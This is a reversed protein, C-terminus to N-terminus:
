VNRMLWSEPTIQEGHLARFDIWEKLAYYAEPTIFSFYEDHEETYVILKAAIIEDDGKDNKKKQPIVHKWKLYDWAGLRIGSSCMVLIIPKVRKDKAGIIKRIEERTPARDNSAKRPKPLARSILKWNIPPLDHSEYFLKIAPIYNKLTGATIEGKKKSGSDDDSSSKNQHKVRKKISDLYLMIHEQAWQKGDNNQRVEDLFLRGQQELDGQLGIFEFFSQLSKPYGKVTRPSNLYTFAYAVPSKQRISM